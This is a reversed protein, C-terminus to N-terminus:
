KSSVSKASERHNPVVAKITTGKKGSSVELTGGLQSLREKMGLIGVGLPAKEETTTLVEQPMGKGDDSIQLTVEEADGSLEIRAKKAQAHKRINNLSEQIVRFLAIEVNQPLRPWRPSVEFDVKIGSRSSFGDAMWQAASVLGAEDLLPPHLLQALSRLERTAENALNVASSLASQDGTKKALAELDMKLAVLKQGTSDHLERAIRRREEDQVRMLYGSLQRLSEESRKKDTIDTNIEIIVPASQGEKLLAWRSSVVRREGNRRRHVLEGEWHGTRVLEEQIEPFTRPFETRLLEYTTKGIAEDRQWGYTEEAGRNWFQINSELDRVIVADHALDLLTAQRKLQELQKRQATVDEISLYILQQGPQPEIRRANLVMVRPGLHPFDHRVDFDDIRTIGKKIQQLLDRLQPIDWQRNGLEFIPLGETEEPVVQFTRYFARNAASVRLNTDLILIPERANESLVNVYVRVQELARKLADIDQLSIVAGDLKNDSTKYPRVRMVHWRGSDKEQIEKEYVIGSGMTATVAQELDDVTLNPRIERLRRGIDGPILNMLKEAPPTFRRIRLDGSVMVVPLNANALLNLLDSNAVSLELNRNQLEENLTTLEENSSQLEEKATELEENTSQLEENASLVEENASKYEESTSEQEEILSQVQDRLQQLEARLRENERGAQNRKSAAGKRKAKAELATQSGSDDFVVAYFREAGTQGRVPIVDLAIERTHGNSKVQVSEVRVPKNDKKARVLAARLDVLLGERAMKSLSFTPHGAAPELYAGTHGRFQVIEMDENVVVSAPVYRNMLVREVEKEVTFPSPLAQHPRFSERRQSMTEVGTFFTVLHTTSKKKYIKHKKDILTFHDTFASLSESSGLMLYGNPKLAYHLAPIVRKQLVPELYILLNRCTILDLNSFPPDKTVNQRAFICMDRVFKNIRYGGDLPVFFLSLREPGIDAVAAETYLGMRARDLAGESIDTAFIQVAKTGLSAPSTRAKEWMYEVLVIAISYAEEGTSCGPVWIRIPTDDLKRDLFLSPFVQERLADFAGKDRFFGTVHILIDRYLEDVEGPNEKIYRVYDKIRELRHLVMRRKIRRHLTTTKYLSFDVGTTDRIRSLLKEMDTGAGIVAAEERPAPVRAIYPHRGIRTLEKAIDKPDLVFDICGAAIASHPMSSYKASAESQAFTIGGAAKIANCGETGDSASGSLIVGIAQTNREKALSDFFQDIPMHIGRTLTRAGLLLVGGEIVMNTNAPIVYVHDPEVKTGDKVETVPIKITRSLIEPLVSGHSPDLHQVLVFAMGTKEPLHRFLATFAELGGASAGIGVVPFALSKKKPEGAAPTDGKVKAREPSKTKRSVKTKM